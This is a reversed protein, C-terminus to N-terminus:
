RPWGLRAALQRRLLLFDVTEGRFRSCRGATGVISVRFFDRRNFISQNQAVGKKANSKKVDRNRSPLKNYMALQTSTGPRLHASSEPPTNCHHWRFRGSTPYERNPTQNPKAEHRDTCDASPSPGDNYLLHHGLKLTSRAPNTGYGLGGAAAPPFPHPIHRRRRPRKGSACGTPTPLM